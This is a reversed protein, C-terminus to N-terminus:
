SIKGEQILGNSTQGFGSQFSMLQSQQSSFSQSSYKCFSSNESQKFETVQKPCYQRNEVSANAVYYLNDFEEEAKKLLVDQNFNQNLMSANNYGNQLKSSSPESSTQVISSHEQRKAATNLKEVVDPLPDSIKKYRMVPMSCEEFSKILSKVPVKKYFEDDESGQLHTESTVETSYNNHLEQEYKEKTQQPQYPTVPTRPTPVFTSPYFSPYGTNVKTAQSVPNQYVNTGNLSTATAFNSNKVDHVHLSTDGYAFSNPGFYEVAENRMQPYNNGGEMFNSLVPTEQVTQFDMEYEREQQYYIREIEENENPRITSIEASCKNKLQTALQSDESTEITSVNESKEFKMPSEMTNQQKMGRKATRNQISQSRGILAKKFEENIDLQGFLPRAGIISQPPKKCEPKEIHIVKRLDSEVNQKKNNENQKVDDVTRTERNDTPLQVVGNEHNVNGQVQEQEKQQICNNSDSVDISSRRDVLDSEHIRLLLTDSASTCSQSATKVTVHEDATVQCEIKEDTLTTSNLNEVKEIELPKNNIDFGERIAKMEKLRKQIENEDEQVYYQSNQKQKISESFKQYTSDAMEYCDKISNLESFCKQQSKIIESQAPNGTVTAKIRDRVKSHDIENSCDVKLKDEVEKPLMQKPVPTAERSLPIYVPFPSCSRSAVFHGQSEFIESQLTRINSAASSSYTREVTKYETDALAFNFEPKLNANGAYKPENLKYKKATLSVPEFSRKPPQFISSSDRQSEAFTPPITPFPVDPLKEINYQVEKIENSEVTKNEEVINTGPDEEKVSQVDAAVEEEKNLNFLVPSTRIATIDREVIEPNLTIDPITPFPSNPRINSEFIENKKFKEM